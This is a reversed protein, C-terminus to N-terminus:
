RNFKLSSSSLANVYHSMAGETLSQHVPTDSESIVTERKTKPFYSEKITKVKHEYDEESEFQIGECLASFKEYDLNSLSVGVSEQIRSCTLGVVQDELTQIVGISEELYGTLEEIKSSQEDLIDLKEEPIEIYNEKFLNKLGDVFNELIDNKIGNEIAIENDNMWNEVVVNLFGDINEIIEDRVAEVAEDLRQAYEEDLRALENQVGEAIAAELIIAAKNKFDESLEEGDTLAAVHEKVGGVPNKDAGKQIETGKNNRASNPEESSPEGTNKRDELRRGKGAVINANDAGAENELLENIKQELSM